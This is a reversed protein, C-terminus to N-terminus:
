GATATSAARCRPRGRASGPSTSSGREVAAVEGAVAGLEVVVAVEPQEAADVVHHVHGAVADRGGLDLGREDVVRRHGLGRDDAGLVVGGALRDDGEHDQLAADLRAVLVALLQALVDGGLDAGIARGFVIMKM